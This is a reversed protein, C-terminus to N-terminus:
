RSRRRSTSPATSRSGGETGVISARTSGVARLTSNLLAHRRERLRAPDLDPRRRRHLGPDAIAVVRNPEGLVM